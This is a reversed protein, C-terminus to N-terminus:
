ELSRSNGTCLPRVIYYCNVEEKYTDSIPLEEEDSFDVIEDFEARTSPVDFDCRLTVIGDEETISMIEILKNKVIIM